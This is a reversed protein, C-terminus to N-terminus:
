HGKLVKTLSNKFKCVSLTTGNRDNLPEFHLPVKNEENEFLLIGINM